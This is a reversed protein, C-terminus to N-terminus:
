SPAAIVDAFVAQGTNDTITRRIELAMPWVPMVQVKPAYATITFAADRKERMAADENDLVAGGMLVLRAALGYYTPLPVLRGYRQILGDQFADEVARMLVAREAVLNTRVMLQFDCQLEATKFLAWGPQGAPEWTEELLRPTLYSDTYKFDGPMVCAAPFVGAENFSPWEDYVEAFENAQSGAFQLDEILKRLANAMADRVDLSAKRSFLELPMQQPYSM